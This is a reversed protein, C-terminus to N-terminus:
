NAQPLHRRRSLPDEYRILYLVLALDSFHPVFHLISHFCVATGAAFAELLRDEKAADILDMMTYKREVIDLGQIEGNSITLRDKALELVSRRTVGDLIVKDDLPATVLEVRGTDKNKWIVFFNSAGAETVECSKGFLWLIQDYGRAQAEKHAILSPGYNRRLM